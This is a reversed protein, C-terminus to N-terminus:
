FLNFFFSNSSIILFFLIKIPILKKQKLDYVLLAWGKKKESLIGSDEEVPIVKNNGNSEKKNQSDAATM